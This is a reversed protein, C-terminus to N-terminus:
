SDNREKLWHSTSYILFLSLFTIFISTLISLFSYNSTNTIFKIFEQSLDFITQRWTFAITFGLTFTILLRLERKSENVFRKEARFFRKFLKKM